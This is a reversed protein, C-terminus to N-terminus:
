IQEAARTQLTLALLKFSVNTNQTFMNTLSFSENQGLFDPFLLPFYIRSLLLFWADFDGSCAILVPVTNQNIYMSISCLM